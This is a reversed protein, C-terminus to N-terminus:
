IMFKEVSPCCTSGWPQQDGRAIGQEEIESLGTSQKSLEGLM